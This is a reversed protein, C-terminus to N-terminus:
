FTCSVGSDERAAESAAAADAYTETWSKYAHIVEACFVGYVTNQRCCELQPSM